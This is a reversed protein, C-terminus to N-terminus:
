PVPVALIGALKDLLRVTEDFAESFNSLSASITHIDVPQKVVALTM